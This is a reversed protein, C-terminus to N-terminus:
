FNYEIGIALGDNKVAKTGNTVIDSFDKKGELWVSVNSDWQYNVGAAIYEMEYNSVIQGSGATYASADLLNYYAYPRINDFTYGAYAEVGNAKPILNGNADANHYENYNWNAALYLGNDFSGFTTGVAYIQDTKNEEHSVKGNQTKYTSKYEGINFGAAVNFDDMVSYTFSAGYTNDYKLSTLTIGKPVTLKGLDKDSLKDEQLQMQVAISLDGFSNRYQIANDARGTGNIGGSNLAYAGSANGGWMKGEDTGAVVDYYASWQKGFTISGYADHHLGVNALRNSFLDSNGDSAGIGEESSAMGGKDGTGNVGWQFEGTAKWGATLEHGFTFGIRSGNNAMVANDGSNKLAAISVKGNIGVTNGDKNYVETASVVPVAIITALATAIITKKM